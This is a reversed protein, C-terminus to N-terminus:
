FKYAFGARVAHLNDIGTDVFDGTSYNYRKHNYDSYLYELRVLFNETLGHEIGGGVVYGVHTKSDRLGPPLPPTPPPPNNSISINSRAFAVGATAYFLTNDHAWGLRARITALYDIDQAVRDQNGGSDTHTPKINTATIDAEAGFVMNGMQYNYGLMGGAILGSGSLEPDSGGNPVFHSDISGVGVVAGIYVGSWDYVPDRMQVPPPPPPLDAALTMASPAIFSTALIASVLLRNKTKYSM